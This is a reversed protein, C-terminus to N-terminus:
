IIIRCLPCTNENDKKFWNIICEKHYLHNCNLKIIKQNKSLNNLCISCDELLDNESKFSKLKYIKFYDNFKKFSPNCIKYINYGFSIFIISYFMMQIFYINQNNNIKEYDEYDINNENNFKYEYDSM